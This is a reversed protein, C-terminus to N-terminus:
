DKRSLNITKKNKESIKITVFTKTSNLVLENFMFDHENFMFDFENLMQDNKTMKSSSRSSTDKLTSFQNLIKSQSTKKVFVNM